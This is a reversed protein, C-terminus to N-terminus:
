GFTFNVSTSQLVLPQMSQLLSTVSFPGKKLPHDSIPISAITSLHQSSFNTLPSGQSKELDIIIFCHWTITILKDSPQMEQVALAGLDKKVTKKREVVERIIPFHYGFGCQM